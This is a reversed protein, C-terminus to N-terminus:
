MPSSSGDDLHEFSVGLFHHLPGMDTMSFEWQLAAINQQLLNQSSVTLVIDDVYLLLLAMNAGRCYIFLFTDSKPEVIWSFYHSLCLSQAM